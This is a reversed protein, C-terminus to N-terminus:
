VRMLNINKRVLINIQKTLLNEFSDNNNDILEFQFKILNKDYLFGYNPIVIIKILDITDFFNDNGLSIQKLNEEGYYDFGIVTNNFLQILM